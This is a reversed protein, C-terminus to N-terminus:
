LVSCLHFIVLIMDNTIRHNSFKYNRVGNENIKAVKKRNIMKMKNYTKAKIKIKMKIIMKDKKAKPYILTKEQIKQCEEGGTIKILILSRRLEITSKTSLNPIPPTSPLFRSISFNAFILILEKLNDIGINIGIIPM